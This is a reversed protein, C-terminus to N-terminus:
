SPLAVIGASNDTIMCIQTDYTKKTLGQLVKGPGVEIWLTKNDIESTQHAQTLNHHLCHLTQTWLVPSSIQRILFDVTYTSQTHIKADVNAIIRGSFDNFSITKFFDRMKLEAPKMLSSHFPASVPLKIARGLKKESIIQCIKEIASSHGSLVFQSPSNYNAVEIISEPTSIEQCLLEIADGQTGIYAAMGGLGIPVAQQMARGRIHVANLADSFNLAGLAVLASYEGLSHGAVIIPAFKTHAQLIRFIGISVTLIAPQTFETLNLKKDPDDFCLTKMDFGLTDSAEELTQAFESFNQHLDRGMGVYQSGQGPFLFVSQTSM